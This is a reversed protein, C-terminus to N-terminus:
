EHKRENNEKLNGVGVDDSFLLDAGVEVLLDITFTETNIATFLTVTVSMM